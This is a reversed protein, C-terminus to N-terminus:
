GIKAGPEIIGDDFVISEEVSADKEVVVGPSLISLWAKGGSIFCGDGVISEAVNPFSQFWNILPCM